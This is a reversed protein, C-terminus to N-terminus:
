LLPLQWGATSWPPLSSTGCCPMFVRHLSLWLLPQSFGQTQDREWLTCSGVFCYLSLWWLREHAQLDRSAPLSKLTHGPWLLPTTMVPCFEAVGFTDCFLSRSLNDLSARGGGDKFARLVQDALARLFRIHEITSWPKPLLSSQIDELPGKRVGLIQHQQSRHLCHKSYQRLWPASSCHLQMEDVKGTRYMHSSVCASKSDNRRVRRWMERFSKGSWTHFPFFCSYM